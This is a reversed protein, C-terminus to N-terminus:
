KCLLIRWNNCLTIHLIRWYSLKVDSRIAKVIQEGPAAGTTTGIEMSFKIPIPHIRARARGCKKKEQLSKELEVTLM